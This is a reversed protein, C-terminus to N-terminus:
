AGQEKRIISEVEERSIEDLGGFVERRLWGIWGGEGNGGDWLEGFRAEDMEDFCLSEAVRRTGTNVGLGLSTLDITFSEEVCGIGSLEQLKKLADHQGLGQFQEVNDALWGSLVHAKRWFGPNRDLRLQARVQLGRRNLKRELLSRRDVPHAPLFAFTEEGTEPIVVRAGVFGVSRSRLKARLKAARDTV